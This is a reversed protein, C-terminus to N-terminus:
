KKAFTAKFRLFKTSSGFNKMITFYIISNDAARRWMRLIVGGMNIYPKVIDWSNKCVDIGYRHQEDYRPKDEETYNFKNVLTLIRAFADWFEPHSKYWGLEVNKLDVPKINKLKNTKFMKNVLEMDDEFGNHFSFYDGCLADLNILKYEDGFTPLDKEVLDNDFLSETTAQLERFQLLSEKLSKM